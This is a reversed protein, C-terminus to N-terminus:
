NEPDEPDAEISVRERGNASVATLTLQNRIKRRLIQIIHGPLNAITQRFNPYGLFLIFFNCASKLYYPYQLLQQWLFQTVVMPRNPHIIELLTNFTRFVASPLNLCLTFFVVCFCLRGFQKKTPLPHDGTQGTPGKGKTKICKNEETQQMNFPEGTEGDRKLHVKRHSQPSECFEVLLSVTTHILLYTLTTYPLMVNIFIDTRGLVVLTNFYRNIPTCIHGTATPVVGVMLSINLFVATACAVLCLIVVRARILTCLSKASQSFCIRIYGDVALGVTIWLSLFSSTHSLFSTLHCLAGLRYLDFGRETLWMLFLNALLTVDTTLIACLYQILSTKQLSGKVVIALSILNLPIGTCFILPSAYTKMFLLTSQLTLAELDVPPIARNNPLEEETLSTRELPISLNREHYYTGNTENHVIPYQTFEDM